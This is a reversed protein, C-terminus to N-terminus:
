KTEEWKNDIKEEEEKQDKDIQAVEKNYVDIIAKQAKDKEDALKQTAEDLNNDVKNM